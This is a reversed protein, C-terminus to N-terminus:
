APKELLNRLCPESSSRKSNSEPGGVDLRQKRHRAVIEVEGFIQDPLHQLGLAVPERREVFIERLGVRLVPPQLDRPLADLDDLGIDLAAPQELEAGLEDARVIMRQHRQETGRRASGGGREDRDAHQLLAEGALQRCAGPQRLQLCIM